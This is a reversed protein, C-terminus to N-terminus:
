SSPWPRLGTPRACRTSFARDRSVSSGPARAQLFRAINEGMKQEIFPIFERALRRLVQAPDADAPVSALFETPLREGAPSSCAITIVRDNALM